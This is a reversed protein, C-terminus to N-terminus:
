SMSSSSLSSILPCYESRPKTTAGYNSLKERGEVGSKDLLNEFVICTMERTRSDPETTELLTQQLLGLSLVGNAPLRNLIM